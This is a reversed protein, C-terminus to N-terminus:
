LIDNAIDYLEEFTTEGKLAKEKGDDLYTKFHINKQIQRIADTGKHAQIAARIEPTTLMIENIAMQGYYGTGACKACGCGRKLRIPGDGLDFTERWPHGQPLDYEEACDPCVRRVLRQSVVAALTDGLVYPDVGMNILRSVVGVSDNAHLTAHAPHGTHAFNIAPKADELNRIEGFAVIDPRHRLASAFLQERTMGLNEDVEVQTIGPLNIEVPEEISYIAKHREMTVRFGAYLLSTKGSGTPGSIIVLGKTLNLVRKYKALNETSMGLDGLSRLVSTIFRFNFDYGNFSSVVNVRVDISRGQFRVTLRGEVPKGNKDDPCHCRNKVVNRLSPLVNAAITTYPTNKGDVTLWVQAILKSISKEEVRGMPIIRLDTARWLLASEFLTDLFVSMPDAYQAIRDPQLDTRSMLAIRAPQIQYRQYMAYTQETLLTFKVPVGSGLLIKVKNKDIDNEPDNLVFFPSDGSRVFFQRNRLIADIDLHGGTEYLRETLEFDIETKYPNEICDMRYYALAANVISEQSMLSSELLAKYYTMGRETIVKEGLVRNQEPTVPGTEQVYDRFM